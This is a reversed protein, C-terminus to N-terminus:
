LSPRSPIKSVKTPKQQNADVVVNDAHVGSIEATIM